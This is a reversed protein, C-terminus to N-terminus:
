SAIQNSFKYSNSKRLLRRHLVTDFAKMYDLYIIDINYGEEMAKTWIDLVKLLQLTSSRGPLFGFQTSSFMKNNKMFDMVQNRIITELVKYVVSTLSVPRHNGAMKKNGKNKFIATIRGVKWDEPLAGNEFSKCFIIKLPKCMAKATRSLLMPHLGDPESSKNPKLQLLVKEVKEETIKLEAMQNAIQLEELEQIQGSKKKKAQGGKHVSERVLSQNYM